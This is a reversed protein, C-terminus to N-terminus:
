LFGRWRLVLVLLVAVVALSMLISTTTGLIAAKRRDWTSVASLHRVCLDYDTAVKGEDVQMLLKPSQSMHAAEALRTAAERVRRPLARGGKRLKGELGQGRLNLREEMLAAVRDAMQQIAVAGM